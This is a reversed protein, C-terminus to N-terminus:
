RRESLVRGVFAVVVATTVGITKGISHDGVWYIAAVL